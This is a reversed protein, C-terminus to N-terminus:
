KKSKDLTYVARGVRIFQPNKQLNLSITGKKVQRQKLVGKIIDQKSMPSKKELLSEIIDTVTGDQYGWEKLAYLGRGVLVFQPYRILENHVAQVTVKKSDFKSNAIKNAIEVFHLPKGERHLVILSKDRISKPNIHRWTMLGYGEEVKKIRYDVGLVSSFFSNSLKLDQLTKSAAMAKLLESESLIDGNTKLAKVAVDLAGMVAAESISESHWCLRYLNNKELSQIGPCIALSLRVIHEDVEFTKEIADLIYAVLDNELLVGGKEKLVAIALDHIFRLKTGNVTRKLKGLAIKEIQRIRERTVNFSRGISELTQREKNDLSFRKVVVDREKETLVMFIDDIIDSLNLKLIANQAKLDTTM